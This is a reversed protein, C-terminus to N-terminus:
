APTTGEIWRGYHPMKGGHRIFEYILEYVEGLDQPVQGLARLATQLRRALPDLLEATDHCAHIRRAAHSIRESADDAAAQADAITAAKALHCGTCPDLTPMAYATALAAHAASLVRRARDLDTQAEDAAGTVQDQLQRTDRLWSGIHDEADDIAELFESDSGYGGGPHWSASSDAQHGPPSGAPDLAAIAARLGTLAHPDVGAGSAGSLVATVAAALEGTEELMEARAHLQEEHDSM